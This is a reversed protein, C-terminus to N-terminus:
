SLLTRNHCKRGQEQRQNDPLRAQDRRPLHYKNRM